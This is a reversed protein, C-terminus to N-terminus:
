GARKPGITEAVLPSQAALKDLWALGRRIEDVHRARTQALVDGRLKADYGYEQAKSYTRMDPGALIGSMDDDTAAIGFHGFCQALGARPDSLFRDFDLWLIRDRAAPVAASLAMMESAWAMAILEGPSAVPPVDGIRKALRKARLDALMQAERPSNEAGIISALYNEPSVFMFIARPKYRRSLIETALESAFSTAKVLARQDPRFRRSWLKLLPALHGEFGADNWHRPFIEPEARMQALTRLIAPERLAFIGPHRGLLRSLLTSGVHGIHFIFHCDEVLATESIAASLERFPLARSPGTLRQDLFAAQVYEAETLRMLTVSDAAVDLLHPFLQPNCALPESLSTM